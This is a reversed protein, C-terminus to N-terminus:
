DFGHENAQWAERVPAFVPNDYDPVDNRRETGLMGEFGSLDWVEDAWAYWTWSWGRAEFLSVEDAIYDSINPVWRMGGWEGVLIPVDYTAQFTDVPELYGELWDRDIWAEEIKSEYPYGIFPGRVQHTLEYPEYTHLSYIINDDDYPQWGIFGEAGGWLVPEIVIPRIPDEERIAAILRPALDDWWAMAEPMPPSVGEVWASEYGFYTHPTPEIMPEWAIIEQRDKFRRVVDQMMAVYADQAAPDDYIGTLEDGEEYDPMMENRGPGNRIGVIVPLDDVQAATDLVQALLDIEAEDPGYPPELSWTFQAYIVVVNAGLDRMTQFSEYTPFYQEDYPVEDSGVWSPEIVAGRLPTTLLDRAHFQPYTGSV